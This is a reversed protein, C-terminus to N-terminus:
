YYRQPGDFTIGLGCDLTDDFENTAGLTTATASARDGKLTLLEPTSCHAAKPTTFIEVTLSFLGAAASDLADVALEYHGTAPPEFVFGGTAGAKIAGTTRGTAGSSSCDANIVNEGCASALYLVGEFTPALTFRYTHAEDLDLTYYRQPGLYPAVGGCRIAGGYQNTAGSTTGQVTVRTGSLALTGGGGCRDVARPRLDAPVVDPLCEYNPHDVALDQLSADRVVPGDSRARPTESCAVAGLAVLGLVGGGGFGWTRRSASRVYLALNRPSLM